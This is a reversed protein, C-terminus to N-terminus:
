KNISKTERANEHDTNWVGSGNKPLKVDNKGLHISVYLEKLGHIIAVSSINAPKHM